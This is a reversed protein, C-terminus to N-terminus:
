LCKRRQYSDDENEKGVFQMRPSDGAPNTSTFTSTIPLPKALPSTEKV